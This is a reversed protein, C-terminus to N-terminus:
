VDSRSWDWFPLCCNSSSSLRKSIRVTSNLKHTCPLVVARCLCTFNESHYECFASSLQNPEFPLMKSIGNEPRLVYRLRRFRDSSCTAGIMVFTTFCRSETSGQLITRRTWESILNTLSLRNRSSIDRFSGSLEEIMRTRLLLEIIISGIAHCESIILIRSHPKVVVQLNEIEVM